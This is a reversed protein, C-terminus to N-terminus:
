SAYAAPKRGPSTYQVRNPRYRFFGRRTESARGSSEAQSRRRADGRSETSASASPARRCWAEQFRRRVGVRYRKSRRYRIHYRGTARPTQVNPRSAPWGARCRDEPLACQRRAPRRGSASRRQPSARWRGHGSADKSRTVCNVTKLEIRWISTCRSIALSINRTRRGPPCMRQYSQRYGFGRRGATRPRFRPSTRRSKGFQAIPRVTVVRTGGNDRAM